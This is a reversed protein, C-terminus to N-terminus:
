GHSRLLPAETQAGTLLVDIGEGLPSLLPLGLGPTLAAGERANVDGPPLGAAQSLGPKDRAAAAVGWSM